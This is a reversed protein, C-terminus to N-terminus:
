RTSLWPPALGAGVEQNSALSAPAVEDDVLFGCARVFASFLNAFASVTTYIEEPHGQVAIVFRHGPVELLEAVGDGARGSIHV